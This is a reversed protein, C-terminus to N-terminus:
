SPEAESDAHARADAAQLQDILGTVELLRAVARSLGALVLSGGRTEAANAARVITRLGSSDMFSVGKLNLVISAGDTTILPELAVALQEASAMDLEGEVIVRWENPGLSERRTAFGVPPQVPDSM